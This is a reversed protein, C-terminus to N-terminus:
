LLRVFHVSVEFIFIQLHPSPNLFFSFLAGFQASYLTLNKKAGPSRLCTKLHAKMKTLPFSFVFSSCHSRGLQPISEYDVSLM